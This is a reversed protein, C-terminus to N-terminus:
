YDQGFARRPPRRGPTASSLCGSRGHAHVIVGLANLRRRQCVFRSPPKLSAVQGAGQHYSAARQGIVRGIGLREIHQRHALAEVGFESLRQLRELMEQGGPWAIAASKLLPPVAVLRQTLGFQRDLGKLPRGAGIGRQRGTPLRQRFQLIRGPAYVLGARCAGLHFPQATQRGLQDADDAKQMLPPEVLGLSQAAGIQLGMAVVKLGHAQEGLQPDLGM